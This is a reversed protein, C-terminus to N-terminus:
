KVLTLNPKKGSSQVKIEESSHGNSVLALKAKPREPAAVQQVIPQEAELQEEVHQHNEGTEDPSYLMMGAHTDERAYISMVAEFPVYIRELKGQFRAEFTIIDDEFSLMSVAGMGINLIISNDPSILNVPVRVGQHNCNVYVYPTCESEVIWNYIAVLMFPRQDLM